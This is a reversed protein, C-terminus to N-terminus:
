FLECVEPKNNNKKRKKKKVEEEGGDVKEFVEDEFTIYSTEKSKKTKSGIAQFSFFNNFVFYYLASFQIM